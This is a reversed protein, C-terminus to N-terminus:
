TFLSASCNINAFFGSSCMKGLKLIFVFFFADYWKVWVHLISVYLCMIDSANNIHVVEINFFLLYLM